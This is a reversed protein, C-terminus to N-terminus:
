EDTKKGLVKAAEDFFFVHKLKGFQMQNVERYSTLWALILSVIWIQIDTSKIGVLEICVPYRLLEEIPIGEQVNICQGLAICITKLKNRIVNIYGIENRPIKDRRKREIGQDLDYITPYRRTKETDFSDYLDQVSENLYLNSATQIGFVESTIECFSMRWENLGVGPPPKLPNFYFEKNWRLILLHPIYHKIYRTGYKALDFAIFPIGLRSLEIQLIRLLNTKGSGSRGVVLFHQVLEKLLLHFIIQSKIIYGLRIDGSVQLQTTTKFTEEKTGQLALPLYKYQYLEPRKQSNNKKM